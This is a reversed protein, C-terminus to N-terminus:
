FLMTVCSEKGMLAHLIDDSSISNAAFFDLLMAGTWELLLDLRGSDEPSYGGSRGAVHIDM